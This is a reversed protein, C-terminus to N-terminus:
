VYELEVGAPRRKILECVGSKVIAGTATSVLTSLQTQIQAPTMASSLISTPAVNSLAAIVSPPISISTSQTRDDLSQLFQAIAVANVNLADSRSVGALDHPTVIGDSPIASVSGITVKGITFACATGKDYQFSGDSGTLGTLAGCTYAIGSVPSDIVYGISPVTAPGLNSSGGGGGGGCGVVVLAVGVILFSASIQTKISSLEIV